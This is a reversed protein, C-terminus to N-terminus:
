HTRGSTTSRRKHAHLSSRAPRIQNTTKMQSESSYSTTKMERYQIEVVSARSIEREKEYKEKKKVLSDIETQKKFIEDKCTSDYTRSKEIDTNTEHDVVRTDFDSM